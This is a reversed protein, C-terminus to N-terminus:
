DTKESLVAVSERLVLKTPLTHHTSDKEGEINKILLNAAMEGKCYIPQSVTTLPPFVLESYTIDDFGVISLDQPIRLGNRRAADMFGIAIVDSMAVVATPPNDFDFVRKFTNRSVDISCESEDLWVQKNDLELGFAHLASIYGNMRQRLTGTYGHYDGPTESKISVILIRRHGAELVHTLIARAGDEDEINVAPVGEIPDSDITVFPVDRQKLIVMAETDEEVGLTLFGDVAANAIAREMSGEIPPVLMISFGVKECVESIGLLLESLFPSSIIEYLPMPMLVGLAGTRGTSMSRAVPDPVYRLEKAVDLIRQVTKKPLRNPYNFAYSVAAKSVGAKKAIDKITVKAMAKM